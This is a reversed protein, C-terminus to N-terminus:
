YAASYSQQKYVLYDVGTTKLQEDTKRNFSAKLCCIKLKSYFPDTRIRRVLKEVEDHLFDHDFVIIGPQLTSIYPFVKHKSDVHCLEMQTNGRNIFGANVLNNTVLLILKSNSKYGSTNM